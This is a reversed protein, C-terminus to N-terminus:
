RSIGPAGQRSSWLRHRALARLRPASLPGAAAQQLHSRPLSFSGSGSLLRWNLDPPSSSAVSFSIQEPQAWHGLRMETEDAKPHHSLVQNEVRLAIAEGAHNVVAGM